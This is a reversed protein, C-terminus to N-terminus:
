SKAELRKNRKRKRHVIRAILRGIEIERNGLSIEKRSEGVKM